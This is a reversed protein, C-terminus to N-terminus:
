RRFGSRFDSSGHPRVVASERTASETGSKVIPTAGEVRAGHSQAIQERLLTMAAIAEAQTPADRNDLPQGAGIVALM